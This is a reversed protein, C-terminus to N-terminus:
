GLGAVPREDKEIDMDIVTCIKGITRFIKM